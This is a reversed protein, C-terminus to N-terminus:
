RLGLLCSAFAAIVTFLCTLMEWAGVLSDEPIPLM